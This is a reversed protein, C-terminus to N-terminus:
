KISGNLYKFTYFMTSDRLEYTSGNEVDTVIEIKKEAVLLNMARGKVYNCTLGAVGIMILLLGFLVSIIGEDDWM